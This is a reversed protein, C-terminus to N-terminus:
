RMILHADTICKERIKCINAFAMISSHTAMVKELPDKQGLSQVWTEQVAPLKKVMQALLSAWYFLLFFCFDESPSLVDTNARKYSSWYPLLVCARHDSFISHCRPICLLLSFSNTEGHHPMSLAGLLRFHSHDYQTRPCGCEDASPSLKSM